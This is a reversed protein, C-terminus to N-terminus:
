IKLFMFFVFYIIGTFNCSLLPLKLLSCNDICIVLSVKYSFTKGDYSVKPNSKLSEFVTKNANGDVHCEKNISELTLPQRKEFLLDIVRKIQAGPSHPPSAVYALLAVPPTSAAVYAVSRHAQAPAGTRPRHLRAAHQHPQAQAHRPSTSCQLPPQRHTFRTPLPPSTLSPPLSNPKLNAIENKHARAQFADLSSVTPLM